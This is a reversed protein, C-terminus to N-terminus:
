YANKNLSEVQNIESKQKNEVLGVMVLNKFDAALTVEINYFNSGSGVSFDSITGIVLGEPFSPTYGQRSLPIVEKSSFMIPFRM